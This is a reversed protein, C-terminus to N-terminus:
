KRISIIERRVVMSPDKTQNKTNLMNLTLEDRENNYFAALTDAFISNPEVLDFLTM